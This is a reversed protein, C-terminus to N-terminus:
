MSTTTPPYRLDWRCCQRAPHNGASRMRRFVRRPRRSKAARPRGANRAPRPALRALAASAGRATRPRRDGRRGPRRRHPRRSGSAVPRERLRSPATGRVAAPALVPAPRPSRSAVAFATRRGSGAPIAVRPRTSRGLPRVTAQAPGLRARWSAAGRAATPAAVARTPREAAAARLRVAHRRGAVAEGATGAAPRPSQPARERRRRRRVGRGLSPRDGPPVHVQGPGAVQGREVCREDQGGERNRQSQAAGGQANGAIADGAAPDDRDAGEGQQCGDADPPERRDPEGPGRHGRRPGEPV